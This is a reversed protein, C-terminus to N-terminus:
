KYLEPLPSVKDSVKNVSINKIISYIVAFDPMVGGNGYLLSNFSDMQKTFEENQVSKALDQLNNIKTNLFVSQGWNILLDRALRFDEKDVAQKFQRLYDSNRPHMKKINHRGFLIFSILLGSIFAMLAAVFVIYKSDSTNNSATSPEDNKPIENVLHNGYVNKSESVANYLPNAKVDIEEEPIIAIETKGSTTNFWPIRIEPLTIKGSQQPIYVVRLIEQSIVKNDHVASTYQPKEPYQKWSSNEPFKIEPLKQEMVGAATITIERTAIEGVKFQTDGELWHAEAKLIEAPLWFSPSYGEPIAKINVIQKESRLLVPKQSQLFGSIDMDFLSIFGRGGLKQPSSEYTIYYGDVIAQPIELKGSKQPFMVYNITIIRNGDKVESQPQGTRKILWNESNEFYPEKSIQIDRNDTITLVAPVAQDIYPEEIELKLKIDFNAAQVASETDVDDNQSPNASVPQLIEIEIPSSKYKGASIAPITIVGNDKPFLSLIWERKQTMNGNIYSSQISSSTSYIIFDNQLVDLDPQLSGGDAGDYSLRLTIIEGNAVKKNDVSATFEDAHVSFAIIMVFMAAFFSNKIM